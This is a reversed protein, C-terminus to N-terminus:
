WGADAEGGEQLEGIDFCRGVSSCPFGEIIHVIM